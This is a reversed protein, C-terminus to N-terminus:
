GSPSTGDRPGFLWPRFIRVLAPMVIWTLAAVIAATVVANVLLPHATPLLKQGLPPLLSTLPYVGLFTVLAMRIRAPPGAEPREPLTFWGALGGREEIHPETETLARLRRMWEHYADSETFARRTAASAFRDVVTYDRAGKTGPRLVQIGLNGPAALAFEIFERMAAEFEGERNPLVRRRVIITLPEDATQTPMIRNRKEIQAM